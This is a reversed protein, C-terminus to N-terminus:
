NLLCSSCGCGRCWKCDWHHGEEEEVEEEEIKIAGLRELMEIQDRLWVTRNQYLERAQPMKETKLAQNFMELTSCLETYDIDMERHQQNM